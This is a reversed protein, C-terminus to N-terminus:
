QPQDVVRAAATRVPLAAPDIRRLEATMKIKADPSIWTASLGGDERPQCRLTSEGKGAFVLEGSIVRGTRPSWEASENQDIGPGIAYIATVDRGTMAEIAVLVERGNPYFGYWTDHASRSGDIAPISFSAHAPAGLLTTLKPAASQGDALQQPLRLEASPAEGWVPRCVLEKRLADDDAFERICDGFRRLFAGSSSIWHGVLYAPQDVVAFGIRRQSLISRSEAGRGGPDFDDGHFFFLMVRTRRLRDLLPYLRTANLRWTDYYEHLDGFAAPATAIVADVADSDDAAMLALFAGFSQGALMIRRYGRQKLDAVIEVLRRSSASLTDGDRLRDFRLVDWGTDRLARLYSPTPSKYDESDLSRGHNWVVAGMARQPGLLSRHFAPGLGIAAAPVSTLAILGLALGCAGAFFCRRM